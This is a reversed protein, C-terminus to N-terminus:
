ETALLSMEDENELKLIKQNNGVQSLATDRTLPRIINVNM